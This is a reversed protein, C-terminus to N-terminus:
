MTPPVVTVADFDSLETVIEIRTISLSADELGLDIQALLQPLLQDMLGSLAQTLDLRLRVIMGSEKDITVSAPVSGVASLISEDLELETAESLKELAGTMRLMEQVMEAPIEGEFLIRSEDGNDVEDFSKALALALALMDSSGIAAGNQGPDSPDRGITQHMWSRGDDMSVSVTLDEGEQHTFLLLQQTFEWVDIDLTLANLAPETQHDGVAHLTFALPLEQGLLSLGFEANLTTDSHFSRLESMKKLGVALRPTFSGCAALTLMALALLLCVTKKLAKM